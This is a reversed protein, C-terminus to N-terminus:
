DQGVMLGVYKYGNKGSKFTQYLAQGTNWDHSYPEGVQFIGNRYCRPPVCGLLQHFVDWAITQGIQVKLSGDREWDQMTYTKM